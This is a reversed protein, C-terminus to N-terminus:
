LLQFPKTDFGKKLNFYAYREIIEPKVGLKIEWQKTIEKEDKRDVDDLYIRCNNSIKNFLFPIASYRAFSSSSGIPGDVLILDFYKIDGLISKLIKIDYWTTQNKYTLDNSIKVIPAHIFEIFNELDNLKLEKKMQDIWTNDSEVVFFKVKLKNLKILKAIYITSIGSGFEIINKPQNISIDNLVHLITSPSISWTTMPTFTSESFLSKLQLYNFQIQSNFHQQIKLNNFRLEIKEKLNNIFSKIM